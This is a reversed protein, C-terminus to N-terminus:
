FEFEVGLVPLTSWQLQKDPENKVENWSYQSVNKRNYVNWVSLYVILNSGQFYFRKDIRINLSHYDFLRESKTKSLDYIGKKIKKQHRMILPLIFHEERMFADIPFIECRM